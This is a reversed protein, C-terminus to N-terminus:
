NLAGFADPASTALTGNGDTDVWDAQVAEAYVVLDTETYGTNTLTVSTFLASTQGNPALPDLYYYVGNGADFWKNATNVTTTNLGNLSFNEEGAVTIRVYVPVTGTNTVKPAKNVTYSNTSNFEPTAFPTDDWPSGENLTIKVTGLTLTNTAPDSTDSYLGLTWMVSVAGVAAIAVALRILNTILRRKMKM